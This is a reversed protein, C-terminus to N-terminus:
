ELLVVKIVLIISDDAAFDVLMPFGASEDVVRRNVEGRELGHGRQQHVDMGLMLRQHELIRAEAEPQYVLEGLILVKHGLVLLRQAFPLRM